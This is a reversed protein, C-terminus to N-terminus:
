VKACCVRPDGRRRWPSFAKKREVLLWKLFRCHARFVAVFYTGEGALLSKVASVADLVFRYSIEM